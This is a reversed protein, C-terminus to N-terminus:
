GKSTYWRTAHLANYLRSWRTGSSEMAGSSLRDRNATM